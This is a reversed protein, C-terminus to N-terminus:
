RKVDAVALEKRAVRVREMIKKMNKDERKSERMGVMKSSKTLRGISVVM